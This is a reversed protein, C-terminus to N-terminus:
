YLGFYENQEWESVQALYREWESRKIHALYRVFEVGLTDKYLKSNEFAEVAEILSSPLKTASEDYPTSTMAPAVAERKIGDLGALLQAAMAFYPNATTDPARNEIRSSEDGAYLLARIMAGRNDTGWQVCNPALQYPAYRKYGNVTPTTLLCSAQAHTLLGAIWASADKTLTNSTQPTFVNRKTDISHLSQHIHWGNAAANALKPKAMFTAHLGRRQCVEKVLTRFLVYRDAQELPDSPEFTFEFQSPGMEIEMTRPELGMADSHRRLTDLLDEVENYRTETLYQWGQTLNRTQVAIPPMSAQEHELSDNLREFVQFEVELGFTAEYGADALSAVATRLVSRSSFTVSTGSRHVVDCLVIASHPSWPVVRYSKPNPVLLLDGAGDFPLGDLVTAGSWVDFVTKHATDKLLLTSPVGIGAAFVGPMVRSTVTKGRLIGHPDAFMLRVTEINNSSIKEILDAAARIDDAGYVGTTALLGQKIKGIVSDNM